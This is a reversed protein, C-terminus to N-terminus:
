NGFMPMVPTVANLAPLPQFANVPLTSSKTIVTSSLECEVVVTVSKSGLVPVFTDIVFTVGSGEYVPM